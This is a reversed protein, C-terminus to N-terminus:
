AGLQPPRDSSVKKKIGFVSLIRAKSTERRLNQFDTRLEVTAYQTIPTAAVLLENALKANGRILAGRVSELATILV